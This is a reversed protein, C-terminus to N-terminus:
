ADSDSTNSDSESLDLDQGWVAFARPPHHEEVDRGNMNRFHHGNPSKKSQIHNHRHDSLTPTKMESSPIQSRTASRPSHIDDRLGHRHGHGERESASAESDDSLMGWKVKFEVHRPSIAAPHQRSRSRSRSRSKNRASLLPRGPSRGQSGLLPDQHNKVSDKQHASEEAIVEVMKYKGMEEKVKNLANQPTSCEARKVEAAAEPSSDNIDFADEDEDEGEEEVTLSNSSSRLKSQKSPPSAAKQSGDEEVVVFSKQRERENWKLTRSISHFWDTSQNDACVTPFPYKSATVKIHDGEADRM